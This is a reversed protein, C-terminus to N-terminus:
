GSLRIQLPVALKVVVQGTLSWHNQNSRAAGVEFAVSFIGAGTETGLSLGHHTGHRFDEMRRYRLFKGYFGHIPRGSSLRRVGGWGLTAMHASSSPGREYGYGGFVSFSRGDTLSCYAHLQYAVWNSPGLALGVSPYLGIAWGNETAPSFEEEFRESLGRHWEDLDRPPGAEDAPTTAATATLLWVVIGLRGAARRLTVV